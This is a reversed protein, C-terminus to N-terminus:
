VCRSHVSGCSLAGDNLAVLIILASSLKKSTLHLPEVVQTPDGALTGPAPLALTTRPPVSTDSCLACNEHIHNERFLDTLTSILSSPHVPTQDLANPHSPSSLLRVILLAGMDLCRTSPRVNQNLVTFCCNLIVHLINILLKSVSM